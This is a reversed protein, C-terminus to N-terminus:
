SGPSEYFWNIKRGFLQNEDEIFRDCIELQEERMMGREMKLLPKAVEMNSVYNGDKSCYKINQLESGRCVEIHLRENMKKIQTFRCKKNMNMYIQLHPTGSEGIEKGIIYKSKQELSSKLEEFEEESYNNLTMCWRRKQLDQKKKTSSITNGDVIGVQEIQEIQEIKSMKYKYKYFLDKFIFANTQYNFNPYLQGRM